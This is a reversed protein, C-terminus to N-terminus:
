ATPAHPVSPWGSRTLVPPEASTSSSRRSSRRSRLILERSRLEEHQFAGNELRSEEPARDCYASIAPDIHTAAQEVM